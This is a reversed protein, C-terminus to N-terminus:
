DKECETVSTSMLYKSNVCICTSPNWIYDKKCRPYSKYECKCTKNNWKQNSNCLITSNFKCKCDCSVHEMRAKAGNKNTIANFPKVKIDKTEKPVSIKPSLVNYSGSCKDWRIMFPYYNLQVHNLDIFTPRVM